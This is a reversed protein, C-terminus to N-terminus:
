EQQRGTVPSSRSLWGALWTEILAVALLGVLAWRWLKQESELDVFSSRRSAQKVLEAAVSSSQGLSVGLRDLDEVSMATTRCEAVPLNVAFLRKDAPSEITYIGPQDAEAFSQQDRHHSKVSDDPRRIKLDTPGTIPSRPIPISDGVFHQSRQGILVGGYELISYLLPVFKSSLALQSDSPHWSSALVLLSGSGVPQEFLAPENSDFSALVRADPLQTMDVSRYKWFGIRTFDGFRPEAFPAMLPHNFEIRDLMAYGDIEAEESQLNDIGTLAALTAVSQSSKMTLLATRGSQLYQRLAGVLKRELADAVIVFHATAVDADALESGASHFIIKPNLAQSAGFCRQLYYPMEKPDNPDESGIYVINVQQKLHPALYLTNDFDHDDGTLILERGASGDARNPVDVVVSRGPAVYVDIVEGVENAESQDAWTLAFQESTADPSNTIRVSSRAQSDAAALDDRNRLLQLTANTTGEAVIPKVELETGEPWEYTRLTELRSGQQLDSVLVIKRLGTRHQQENVEDDQIAEAANVLARGLVTGAWGPSLESLQEIAAPARRAPELLQWQEFGLLTRAQTDFSMVCVRDTLSVDELVSRAESVAKSWMGARRMSASTDILLVMRTGPRVDSATEPRSFFPRSFALALLCLMICRLILLPLNELRSRSTFRPLTTRLFMLSSFTVRQRTHRRVLHLVIPVGVAAIGALFLPFLFNM